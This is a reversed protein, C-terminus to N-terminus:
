LVLIRSFQMEHIMCLQTRCWFSCQPAESLFLSPFSSFLFLFSMNKYKEKLIKMKRRPHWWFELPPVSENVHHMFFGATLDPTSDLQLIVSKVSPLSRQCIALLCLYLMRCIVLTSIKQSLLLSSLTLATWSITAHQVKVLLLYFCMVYRTQWRQIYWGTFTNFCSNLWWLKRILNYKSWPNSTLIFGNEISLLNILIHWIILAM